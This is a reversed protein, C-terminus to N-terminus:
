RPERGAEALAAAVRDGYRARVESRLQADHRPVPELFVEAVDPFVVRLERDMDLAVVELTAADLDDAFDLRACVLVRDTGIRQTMLDVLADVHPQSALWAGVARILRPDAQSGVLLNKNTRALFFAVVALLAAILLSAVADPVSSGTLHHLWIGAFALVVGVLAASDEYFVTKVTPDDTSRLLQRVTQDHQRAESRVQRTARVWSIGELVFALALVVSSIVLGASEEAPGLLTDIGEIAAFVAGSVFISVAAVFSWFFREPGYGFPHDRDPPRDSRRLAVLLIVENATDAVSHATESAMAASGSVVAAVGKAVAIGANAALAVLVTGVSDPQDDQEQAM